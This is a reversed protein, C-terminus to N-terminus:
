HGAMAMGRAGAMEQQYIARAQKACASREAAPLSRCAGLNEQLGAAIEKRVTRLREATTVDEQFWRPPDGRAIEAAQRQVTAAPLNRDSSEQAQAPMGLILAGCIAAARLATHAFPHMVVGQEPLFFAPASAGANM